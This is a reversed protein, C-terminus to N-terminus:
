YQWEWTFVRSSSGVQVDPCKRFDMAAQPVGRDQLPSRLSPFLTFGGCGTCRWSVHSDLMSVKNKIEATTAPIKIM